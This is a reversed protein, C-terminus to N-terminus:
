RCCCTPSVAAGAVCRCRSRGDCDAPVLSCDRKPDSRLYILGSVAALAVLLLLSELSSTPRVARVDAFTQIAAASFASPSMAGSDQTRATSVRHQRLAAPPEILVIAGALAQRGVEGALLQGAQLRPLNQNPTLRLWTAGPRPSAGAALAEFSPIPGVAGSLEALQRRHVGYQAAALIRAGVAAGPPPASGALRWNSSGPIREAPRAVVVFGAPIGAAAFDGPPLASFAVRRAGLQRAASVLDGALNATSGDYAPEAAVLVVKPLQGPESLTVVDFFHADAFGLLDRDQAFALLLAIAVPLVGIAVRRWSDLHLAQWAAALPGRNMAPDSEVLETRGSIGARSSCDAPGYPSSRLRLLTM